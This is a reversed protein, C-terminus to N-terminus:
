HERGHRCLWWGGAVMGAGWLLFLGDWASLGSPEYVHHLQLLHHDIVGEVLNFLGWGILLSGALLGGSLDAGERRGARWLLAIGIATITWVGAHFFGDWVMNVKAGVYDTNPIRASLMNHFQLIQHFVIGDVFGGMGIGLALGASLLPRRSAIM